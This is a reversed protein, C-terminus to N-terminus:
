EAADYIERAELYAVGQRVPKRLADEAAATEADFACSKGEILARSGDADGEFNGMSVRQGWARHGWEDKGCNQELLPELLRRAEDFHGYVFYFDAAQFAYLYGNKQPDDDYALARNYEERGAIAERVEAPLTARVPKKSGGFGEFEVEERR